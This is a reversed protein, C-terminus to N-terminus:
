LHKALKSSFLTICFIIQWGFILRLVGSRNLHLTHKALKPPM